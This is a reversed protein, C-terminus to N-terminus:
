FTQMHAQDLAGWSSKSWFQIESVRQECVSIPEKIKAKSKEPAKAHGEEKGAVVGTGAGVVVGAGAGVVVRAEAAVEAGVGVGVGAPELFAATVRIARPLTLETATATKPTKAAIARKYSCRRDIM